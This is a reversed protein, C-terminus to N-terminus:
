VFATLKTQGKRIHNFDNFIEGFTEELIKDENKWVEYPDIYLDVTESEKYRMIDRILMKDKHKDWLQTEFWRRCSHFSIRYRNQIHGKESVFQIKELFEPHEKGIICRMKCFFTQAVHPHMHPARKKSTYYPFLYGDKLMHRNKLVYEKVLENFDKLIPFEDQIHSKELVISLKNFKSNQFDYINIACIEGIRMGRFLAFGLIVQWKMCWRKSYQWLIKAEETTMFYNMRKEKITKVTLAM